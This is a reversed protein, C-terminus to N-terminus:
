LLLNKGKTTFSEGAIDIEVSTELGIADKSCCRSNLTVSGIKEVCHPRNYALFSRVIFEYVRAKPTDWSSDGASYKTPHIPPHAQDDHGGNRPAQWM